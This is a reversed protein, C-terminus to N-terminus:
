NLVCNELLFPVFFSCIWLLITINPQVDAQVSYACLPIGSIHLTKKPPTIVLESNLCLYVTYFLLGKYELRREFLEKAKNKIILNLQMSTIKLSDRFVVYLWIGTGQFNFINTEQNKSFNSDVWLFRQALSQFKIKRCDNTSWERNSLFRQKLCCIWPTQSMAIRLDHFKWNAYVRQKSTKM